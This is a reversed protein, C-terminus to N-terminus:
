DSVELMAPMLIELELEDIIEPPLLTLMYVDEGWEGGASVM